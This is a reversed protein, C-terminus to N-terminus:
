LFYGFVVVIVGAITMFSLFRKYNKNKFELFIGQTLSPVTIIWGTVGLIAFSLGIGFISNINESSYSMWLWVFLVLAAILYLVTLFDTKYPKM